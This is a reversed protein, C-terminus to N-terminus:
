DLWYSNFQDSLNMNAIITYKARGYQWDIPDDLEGTVKIQYAENKQVIEIEIKELPTHAYYYFNDWYGGEEEEEGYDDPNEQLIKSYSCKWTELFDPKENFPLKVEFTIPHEGSDELSYILDEATVWFNVRYRESPKDLSFNGSTIKWVELGGPRQIEIAGMEVENKMVTKQIKEEQSATIFNGLSFMIALLLFNIKIIM